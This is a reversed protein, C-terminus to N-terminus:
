FQLNQINRISNTGGKANAIIVSCRKRIRQNTSEQGITCRGAGECVEHEVTCVTCVYQGDSTKGDVRADQCSVEVISPQYESVRLQAVSMSPLVGDECKAYKSVSELVQCVPESVKSNIGGQSSRWGSRAGFAFDIDSGM